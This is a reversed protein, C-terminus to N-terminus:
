QSMGLVRYLFRGDHDYYCDNVKYTAGKKYAKKPIRIREPYGMVDKPEEEKEKYQVLNNGEVNEHFLEIEKRIEDSKKVDSGASITDVIIKDKIDVNTGKELRKKIKTSLQELTMLKLDIKGGKKKKQSETDAETSPGALALTDNMSSSKNHENAACRRVISEFEGINPEGKLEIKISEKNLPPITRESFKLFQKRLNETINLTGEKLERWNRMVSADHRSIRQETAPKWPYKLLRKVIPVTVPFSESIREPTWEEPDTTALHRIQEKESWTLLNPLNEKFYKEKVIKHRMDHKGMLTEDIHADYAEGVTFFDSESQEVFTEPDEDNIRLGESEFSRLRNDLGPNAGRRELRRSRLTRIIIKDSIRYIQRFHVAFM